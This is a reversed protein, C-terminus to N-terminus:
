YNIKVAAFFTTSTDYVTPYTNGNGFSAPGAGSFIPPDEGLLNLVTGRLEIHESVYWSAAVDLYNVTDLKTELTDSPNDNDTGGFYRWTANVDVSWPTIWTLIARHRYEPNPSGCQNGFFGACVIPEAGPFPVTDLQDLWTAAYDARFDHSGASWDYVVQIDLGTTELEAINVNTQLFGVEPSFAALSGDSGRTILDCFVPNGTALCEDLTTQAPIGASIADEVTINFYDISISLGDVMQPTWVLGLTYTDAAEPELFPNGGTISQTQGALVDFITGYQASTVGTNQCASLSAIPADSACPDFLQVGNANTGAPSLDPLNTNQGTFLEIVNPARVARQYGARLRVDDIPAWALSLGYTSTDVSTRTDNGARTYDSFRYQGRLTLEKAAAFGTLIPVEFETYIENVEVRGEVPLTAGGVGTFGGGPVQSIEDPRSSLEDRRSEIGALFRIGYDASPLQWGYDGLDAQITGGWVFQSTSGNVLGIGQIFDTSEQTVLSEGNPGRLFINYPVCGGTPDVCVPNGNADTTVNFAQHLNAIVFDNTSESQDRTESNQVFAEWDWEGVTGRLGGVFRFASNELRSNRPGGEVNRHSAFANDYFVGNAVDEPSCGFVELLSIGPTDQIFPNDCNIPHRGFSASPAIQADSYNNMYSFDAFAEVNQSLDYNAKGYFSWRESPRQFFNFPGFNFTQSPGGQYPVMEGNELQHVFGGPGGFTRFNGSGICGFGGFSEDGDDQGLACGSFVRNAQEIAERDEYSAFLTVNGRGDETNAGMMVYFSNEKGDTNADPVPQSAAQLVKKWFGDNNRNHSAGWQYGAEFGEFDSKLIFNAVGGVADSGYVASAGGTLIDVREVLQMPVLDINASSVGSSGYPLRRGDILVLTRQSGLGRLNLTATGSAGNSVESAQGAFVQPLTNVFDEMRVNGRLAAEDGLVSLVPTAAMLNPNSSLKSGTVLVEEMLIDEDENTDADQALVALPMAALSFALTAGLGNRVARTLPNQYIKM